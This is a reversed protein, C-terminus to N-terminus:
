SLRNLLKKVAKFVDNVTIEKICRHHGEKCYHITRMNFFCPACYIDKHVIESRRDRPAQEDLTTPGIINVVPVDLTHAIHLPGTDVSIFLKTKELLAATENIKFDTSIIAKGRMDNVIKETIKRDGPAGVFVIKAKLEKILRDALQGFKFPEWEKLKVGAVATMGILFDNEKVSNKRLFEEAKKREEKTIFIEKKEDFEKIGLFKLLALDHRLKLTHQKHELKYNNFWSFIKHTKGAFRSITTVRENVGAWFPLITDLASAGLNVSWTFKDKSIEKILKIKGLFGQYKESNIFIIKDVRPNNQVIGYNQERIAIALYSKPYKKKITRFVPTTCVIDGIKGMNIVLIKLDGKKKNPLKQLFIRSFFIPSLVFTILIWFINRLM